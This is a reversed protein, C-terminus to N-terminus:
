LPRRAGGAAAAAAAYTATAYVVDVTRALRLGAFAVQPYRVVFPRDRAVAEVPVPLDSPEGDAMTVVRVDHGRDRLFHAFDPGHTAPGGVDPPWIGTLFVFRMPIDYTPTAAIRCMASHRRRRVGCSASSSAHM